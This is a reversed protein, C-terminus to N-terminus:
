FDCQACSFTSSSSSSSKKKVQILKLELNYTMNSMEGITVRLLSLQSVIYRIDSEGSQYASTSHLFSCSDGFKCFGDIAVYRWRKLHRSKCSEQHCILSNSCISNIHHKRCKEGFKCHGRQNFVCLGYMKLNKRSKNQFFFNKPPSQSTRQLSSTHLGVSSSNVNHVKVVLVGECIHSVCMQLKIQLFKDM